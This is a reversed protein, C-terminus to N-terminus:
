CSPEQREVGNLQHRLESLADYTYRRARNIGGLPRHEPLSHWPTFSLNEGFEDRQRYDFTQRPIEITAVKHFPSTRECWVVTPNEVPMRTPCGQLQVLFDLNVGDRSLQEAMVERLNSSSLWVGRSKVSPRISYKVARTGLLYPTQSWYNVALPNGIPKLFSGALNGLEGLRWHFPNLGVFFSLPGTLLKAFDAANKVFFAPHNALIFDQTTADAERALIKKGPVNMLKLAVARVDPIFDSQPKTAGNSYRLWVPYSQASGFVGVKLEPPLDPEVTFRGLVCGHSKAHVARRALGKGPQNDKLYRARFASVIQAISQTENQPVQELDIPEPM